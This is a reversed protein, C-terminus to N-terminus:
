CGSALKLIRVFRVFWDHFEKLKHPPFFSGLCGKFTIFTWQISSLQVLRAGKTKNMCFIVVFHFKFSIYLSTVRTEM